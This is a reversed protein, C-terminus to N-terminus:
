STPPRRSHPSTARGPKRGRAPRRRAAERSRLARGLARRAEADTRRQDPGRVPAQEYLWRMVEAATPARKDVDAQGGQELDRWVYGGGLQSSVGSGYTAWFSATDVVGFGLQVPERGQQVFTASRVDGRLESLSPGTACGALLLALAFFSIGNKM